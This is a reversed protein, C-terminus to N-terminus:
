ATQRKSGSWRFAYWLLGAIPSLLVIAVVWGRRRQIGADIAPGIVLLVAYVALWFLFMGDPVLYNTEMVM